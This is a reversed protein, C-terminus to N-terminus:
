GVASGSDLRKQSPVPGIPEFKRVLCQGDSRLWVQWCKEIPEGTECLVFTENKYPNYTVPIKFDSM